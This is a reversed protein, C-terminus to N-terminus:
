LDIGRIVDYIDMNLINENKELKRITDYLQNMCSNLEDEDTIQTFYKAVKGCIMTRSRLVYGSLLIRFNKELFDGIEKNKKFIQKSLIINQLIGITIVRKIEFDNNRCKDLIYKRKIDTYKYLLEEINKNIM